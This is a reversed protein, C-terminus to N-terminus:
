IKGRRESLLCFIAMKQVWEGMWDKQQCLM